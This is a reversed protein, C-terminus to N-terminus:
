QCVCHYALESEWCSAGSPLTCEAHDATWGGMDEIKNTRTGGQRACFSFADGCTGRYFDFVNCRSDDPFVCDSGDLTYGLQQCYVLQIAISGGVAPLPQCGPVPVEGDPASADPGPPVVDDPGGDPRNDENPGDIPEKNPDGTVYSSQEGASDPSTDAACGVTVIGLVLASSVLFYFTKM